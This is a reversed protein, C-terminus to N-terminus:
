ICLRGELAAFVLACSATLSRSVLWSVVRSHSDLYTSYLHFWKSLIDKYGSAILHTEQLCIINVRLSQLVRVLRARRSELRLGQFNLCSLWVVMTISTQSEEKFMMMALVGVAEGISGIGM